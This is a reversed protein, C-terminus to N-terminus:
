ESRLWIEYLVGRNIYVIMSKYSLVSDNSSSKMPEGLKTLITELDDGTELGEPLSGKYEAMGNAPSAPRIGVLIKGQRDSGLFVGFSSGWSNKRKHFETFNYKRTFEIFEQSKNDLGVIKQMGKLDPAGFEVKEVNNLRAQKVDNEESVPARTQNSISFVNCSNLFM